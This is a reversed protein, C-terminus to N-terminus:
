RHRINTGRLAITFHELGEMVQTRFSKTQLDKVEDVTCKWDIVHCIRPTMLSEYQQILEGNSIKYCKEFHIEYWIGHSRFILLYMKNGLVECVCTTHEMEDLIFCKRIYVLSM